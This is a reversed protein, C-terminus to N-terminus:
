FIIRYLNVLDISVIFSIDDRSKVDYKELDDLRLLLRVGVLEDLLGLDMYVSNIEEKYVARGKGARQYGLGITPLGIDARHYTAGLAASWYHDHILEGGFYHASVSLDASFKAKLKKRFGLSLVQDKQSIDFGYRVGFVDNVALPWVGSESRIIVSSAVPEAMELITGITQNIQKGECDICDSSIKQISTMNSYIDRLKQETFRPGDVILRNLDRSQKIAVKKILSTLNALYAKFAIGEDETKKVSNFARSLIIYINEQPQNITLSKDFETNYLYKFFDRNLVSYNSDSDIQHAMKLLKERVCRPKDQGATNSLETKCELRAIAYAGDYVGVMYDHQRFVDAYFAGFHAHFDALLHHYRNTMFFSAGSETEIRKLASRYERESATHFSDLFYKGYNWLGVKADSALQKHQTLNKTRYSDPNIYIINTNSIKKAVCSGDTINEIRWCQPSSAVDLSVGIPSNDFLGGDSFRATEARGEICAEGDILHHPFCYNLEVPEFAIPYASSALALDFITQFDISYFDSNAHKNEVLKLYPGPIRNGTESKDEYLDGARKLFDVNRFSIKEGVKATVLVPVVFRQLNIIEEFEKVPYRYPEIRTISITILINCDKEVPQNIRLELDRYKDFFAGRSFLGLKLSNHNVITNESSRDQNSPLLKDIGIDWTKRMLNNELSEIVQPSCTDIASLISNLSGASAGSFSMIKSYEPGDQEELRQLYKLLMWNIGTEYNGLSVGGKIALYYSQSKEDQAYCAQFVATGLLVALLYHRIALADEQYLHEYLNYEQNHLIV